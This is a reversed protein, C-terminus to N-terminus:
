FVNGCTKLEQLASDIKPRGRPVARKPAREAWGPLGGVKNKAKKKVNQLGSIMYKM